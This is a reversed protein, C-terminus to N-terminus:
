GIMFDIPAQYTLKVEEKLERITEEAEQILRTGSLTTGGPLQMGEFKSLNQGWQMKILATLYRKFWDNDYVSGHTEPDVIEKVEVAVVTEDVIFERDWNTFIYLRNTHRDFETRREGHFITDLMSLHRQWIDYDVVSSHQLDFLTHLRTQYQVDFLSIDQKTTYKVLRHVGIIADPLTLYGNDVDTQTITTTYFKQLTADKHFDQFYQLAEDVRDNIQDEDVNIQLVPAGLKRLCYQILSTKDTVAM